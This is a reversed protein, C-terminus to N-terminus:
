GFLTVWIVYWWLPLGIWKIAIALLAYRRINKAQLYTAVQFPWAAITVVAFWIWFIAVSVQLERVM